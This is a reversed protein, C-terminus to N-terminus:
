MMVAKDSNVTLLFIIFFMDAMQWPLSLALLTTYWGIHILHNFTYWFLAVPVILAFYRIFENSFRYNAVRIIIIIIPRIPM